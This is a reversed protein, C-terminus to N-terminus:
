YWVSHGGGSVLPADGQILGVAAHGNALEKKGKSWVLQAAWQEDSNSERSWSFLCTSISCPHTIYTTLSLCDTAGCTSVVKNGLTLVVASPINRPALYVWWVNMGIMFCWYIVVAFLYTWPPLFFIDNMFLYMLFGVSMLSHM